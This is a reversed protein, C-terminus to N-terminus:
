VEQSDIMAEATKAADAQYQGSKVTQRLADVRDQRVEPSNLAQSTLSQVSMADSHFTTRDEPVSLTGVQVDNSVKKPGADVPQLNISPSNVEIKM